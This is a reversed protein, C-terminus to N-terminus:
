PEYDKSVGPEIVPLILRSAHDGSFHVTNHAVRADDYSYVPEFTNPHVEYRPANSSTIHVAIRHGRDFVLATSWMDITLQYIRGEELPEPKDPGRWYRAMIASDLILAEYGDPYVDILKAMFTTDGVDTSVHLEVLVKGTIEVPEELPETAFRLIDQRDKLPRQDMPGSPMSLNAGGITRVPDRPDYDYNLSADGSQPPALQLKGDETMYYPTLTFLIPWTRTEKWVNGPGDAKAADGMLYYYLVSEQAAEPVAGTLWRMGPLKARPSHPGYAHPFTLGHMKGHATPGVVTVVNGTHRLAAFDDLASQSFIDFWGAVDSLPTDIDAAHEPLAPGREEETFPVTRPKPWEEVEVGRGRLWNDVMHARLVGGHCRAYLYVNSAAVSTSVAELCPPDALLALKAAVGPGSGGVMGVKGTCWPQQAVWEVTDYGDNPCNRFLDFEGESDFLGRFDQTVYACGHQLYMPASKLANGTRGYPTRMLVAPWPGEGRPLFVETALRVGDRMPVMVTERVTGEPMEVATSRRAAERARLRRAFAQAETVTLVGDGNADADPYQALKGRLSADNRSTREQAHLVGACALLAAVALLVRLAPRSLGFRLPLFSERKGLM